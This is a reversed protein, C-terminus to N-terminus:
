QFIAEILQYNKPESTAGFRVGGRDFNLRSYLM